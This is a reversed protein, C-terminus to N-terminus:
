WNTGEEISEEIQRASRARPTSAVIFGDAAAETGTLAKSNAGLGAHGNYLVPRTNSTAASAPGASVALAVVATIVTLLRTM